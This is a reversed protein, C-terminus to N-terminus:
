RRKWLIMSFTELLTSSKSLEMADWYCQEGAHSMWTMFEKLTREDQFEITLVAKQEDAM